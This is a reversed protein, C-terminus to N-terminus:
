YGEAMRRAEERQEPAGILGLRDGAQFVTSTEPNTLLEGDRIIAVLTAGTRNHLAAEELSLGVLPDDPALSLWSMEIGDAKDLLESLLRHEERVDSWAAYHNRRVSDAYIRVQELPFGLHLLAHRILQLGGELEPHIVRQAGSKGLRQIGATTAARAFITLGPALDRAAAVTLETATDEPLSVVLLRARALGAHTLVESNAADGVLTPVGRRALKETCEANADIALYPIDLHDLVDLIHRGVRGCGVVVVHDSLRTEKLPPLSGHRDLWRWLPAIWRLCRETVGIARFMLPNVLISLLSGALILAYQESKLLGLALGTQGLIFSFEGIQSTGAAVVLATRAPRPFLFAWLATIVSKGFVIMGTLLLVPGINILLYHPDLLMGVSVFFLVSFAERFPLLDEAIRHSLPSEGAVVGALFAGLALSIGFLEAAALATGLAVTLIALIFLERSRTHAVRLLLWPVLRAGIFLMFVIFGVAALATFGLARWDIASETRALSPMVLLILVTALDEMVLWGVAVQGHPTNLLGNDMLGRLLVITSAVSIALGLVLGSSASWGWWQSLGYGAAATTAMQGLAGIIAIDRVKWLDKFSFHLGIGFMLFIVGLEALQNITHSDGVFGPTFPGIIVGALLYGVITPLGMRRVILGGFFAVGLAVAINILLPINNHM